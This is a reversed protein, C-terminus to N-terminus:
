RASRVNMPIRLTRHPPLQASNRLYGQLRAKGGNYSAGASGGILAGLVAGAAPNGAVAGLLTGLAAGSLAGGIIDRILEESGTLRLGVENGRLDRHFAEISNIDQKM